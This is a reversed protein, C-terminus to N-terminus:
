QSLSRTVAAIEEQVNLQDSLSELERVLNKLFDRHAESDSNWPRHALSRSIKEWRHVLEIAAPSFAAEQFKNWIYGIGLPTPHILDETYFRYDRLDDVMIEYAPFYHVDKLGTLRDCAVRLVAKSLSNMPLTDRVHRVPSITLLIRLQPRNSKLLQHLDSIASVITEVALLRKEFNKGPVKQCNTVDKGTPLHRYVYASGLTILLVDSSRVADGILATKENIHQILQEHSTAKVSSHWAHSYWHGDRETFLETDPPTASLGAKLISCISLPDYLTGGPNVTVTFKSRKLCEGIGDAFCSGITLFRSRHDLALPLDIRGIETRLVLPGGPEPM